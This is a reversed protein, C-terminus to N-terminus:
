LLDEPVWPATLFMELRRLFSVEPEHDDITEVGDETAVWEIHKGDPALRLRYASEFRDAALLDILRAALEPSDIRLGVETNIDASRPDLNMSGIVLIRRDVIGFKAHLMANSRGLETIHGRRRAREPSLENIEVGQQLLRLRYKSYAGFVVTEDTAALSNTLVVLRVGRARLRDIVAVGRPGPVFYPSIVFIEKSAAEFIAVSEGLATDAWKLWAITQDYSLPKGELQSAPFAWLPGNFKRLLTRVAARAEAYHTPVAGVTARIERVREPCVDARSLVAHLFIDMGDDPMGALAKYLRHMGADATWGPPVSFPELSKFRAHDYLEAADAYFPPNCM